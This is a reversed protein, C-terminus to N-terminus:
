APPGGLTENVTKSGDVTCLTKALTAALGKNNPHIKTRGGAIIVTAVATQTAEDLTLYEACSMTLSNAPADVPPTTATPSDTPASTTTTETSSATTTTAAVTAAPDKVATGDAGCGAIMAASAAIGLALPIVRLTKM